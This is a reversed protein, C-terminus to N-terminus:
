NGEGKAWKILSKRLLWVTLREAAFGSRVDAGPCLREIDSESSGMGSGAHTCFPKITKGKWDYKELFTFVAMPMTDAYIPYGLFFTDYTELNDPYSKLEPRANKRKDEEAEKVFDAGESYEVVQEIRFLDAGLAESLSEAAIKTIGGHSYFVILTKM